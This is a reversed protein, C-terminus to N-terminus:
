GEPDPGAGTGLRVQDPRSECVSYVRLLAGPGPQIGRGLEPYTGPGLGPGAADGPGSVTSMGDTKQRKSARGEESYYRSTATAM